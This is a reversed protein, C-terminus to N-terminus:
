RHICRSQSTTIHKLQIKQRTGKSNPAGRPKVIINPYLTHPISHFSLPDINTGVQNNLNRPIYYSTSPRIHENNPHASQPKHSLNLDLLVYFKHSKPNLNRRPRNVNTFPILKVSANNIPDTNGHMLTELM